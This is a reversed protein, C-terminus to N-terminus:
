LDTIPGDFPYVIEVVLVGSGISTPYVEYSVKDPGIYAAYTNDQEGNTYVMGNITLTVEIDPYSVEFRHYDSATGAAIDGYNFEGRGTDVIVNTFAVDGTVNKIRVDTPGEPTINEKSCAMVMVLSIFILLSKKMVIHKIM